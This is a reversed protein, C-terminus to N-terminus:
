SNDSNLRTSAFFTGGLSSMFVSLFVAQEFDMEQLKFMPVVSNNFGLKLLYANLLFLLVAVVVAGLIILAKM